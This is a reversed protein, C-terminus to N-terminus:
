FDLISRTHKRSYLITGKGKRGLQSIEVQFLVVIIQFDVLLDVKLRSKSALDGFAQGFSQIIVFTLKM